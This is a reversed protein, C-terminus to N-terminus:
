AASRNVSRSTLRVLNKIPGYKSLYCIGAM